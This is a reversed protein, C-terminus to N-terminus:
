VGVKALLAKMNSMNSTLAELWSRLGYQPDNTLEYLNRAIENMEKVDKEMQCMFNETILLEDTSHRYISFRFIRGCIVMKLQKTLADGDGQVDIWLANV